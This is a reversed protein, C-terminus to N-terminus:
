DVYALHELISIVSYSRAPGCRGTEEPTRHRVSFMEAAKRAQPATDMEAPNGTAEELKKKINVDVDLQHDVEGTCNYETQARHTFCIQKITSQKTLWATVWLDVLFRLECRWSHEATRFADRTSYRRVLAWWVATKLSTGVCANVKTQKLHVFVCLCM